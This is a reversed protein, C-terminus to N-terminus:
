LSEAYRKCAESASAYDKYPGCAEGGTEDWFWWGGAGDIAYGPLAIGDHTAPVLRHLEEDQHDM